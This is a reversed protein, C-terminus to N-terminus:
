DARMLELVVLEAAGYRLSDAARASDPMTEAHRRRIESLLDDLVLGPIGHMNPRLSPRLWSRM